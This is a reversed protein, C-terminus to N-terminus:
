LKETGAWWAMVHGHTLTTTDWWGAMALVHVLMLFTLKLAEFGQLQYHIHSHINGLHGPWWFKM